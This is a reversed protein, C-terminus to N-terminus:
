ARFATGDTENSDVVINAVEPALEKAVALVVM